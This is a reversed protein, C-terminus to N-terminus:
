LGCDRKPVAPRTQYGGLSTQGSEEHITVLDRSVVAFAIDPWTSTAAYMLSGIARQYPVDHM